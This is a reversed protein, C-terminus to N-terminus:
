PIVRVIDNEDLYNYRYNWENEGNPDFNGENDYKM